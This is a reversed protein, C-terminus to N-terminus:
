LVKNFNVTCRDGFPSSWRAEPHMEFDLAAIVATVRM